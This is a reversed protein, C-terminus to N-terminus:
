KRSADREDEALCVFFETRGKGWRSDEGKIEGKERHREKIRRARKVEQNIEKRKVM